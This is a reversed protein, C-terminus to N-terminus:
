KFVKVVFLSSFMYVVFAGLSCSTTIYLIEMHVGFLYLFLVCHLVSLKVYNHVSHLFLDRDPLPGSDNIM